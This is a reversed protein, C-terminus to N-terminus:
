LVLKEIYGAVRESAHGDEIVEHKTMFEDVKKLYDTVDFNKVNEILEDNNEAIDFPLEHREWMFKGRSKIYEQVDDAFLLVPIKAFAADFACSSYDTVVLDCGGMIESIDPIQSVDILRDDKESLPMENLKASLQPHLRLLIRWDAEYKRNLETILRNFDIGPIESIVQKAGKQNGGRFTPAYLLLKIDSDLGLKERLKYRLEEKNNILPDVRPSGVRLTPGSYLLKKPYVRDCYASNSLFMDALNSDWESVLRAIEPFADGRFLGVAKFGITAHWTQIYYQEKRKITGFPKRYNDVWLWATSLHYATNLPTDQVPTIYEPFAKSTDHLLWIMHLEPHKRHLEEAIYRPNCCFGGDGEYSSFVVKNKKIPFIQMLRFLLSLRGAKRKRMLIYKEDSSNGM